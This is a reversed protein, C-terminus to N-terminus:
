KGHWIGLVEGTEARIAVEPCGGYWLLVPEFPLSGYVYWIKEAENYCVQYPRDSFITKDEFYEMWVKRAARRAQAANKIPGLPEFPAIEGAEVYKQYSEIGQNFWEVHYNPLEEFDKTALMCDYYWGFAVILAVALLGALIRGVIKAIRKRM